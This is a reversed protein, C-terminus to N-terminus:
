SQNGVRDEKTESRYDLHLDVASLMVVARVRPAGRVAYCMVVAGTVVVTIVDRSGLHAVRSPFAAVAVHYTCRM